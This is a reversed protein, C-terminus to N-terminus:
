CNQHQYEGDGEDYFFVKNSVVKHIAEEDLDAKKVYEKGMLRELSRRVYNLEDIGMRPSAYILTRITTDMDAPPGFKAITKLRGNLQDCM